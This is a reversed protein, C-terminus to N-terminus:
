QSPSCGRMQRLFSSIVTFTTCHLFQANMINLIKKSNDSKNKGKSNLLRMQMQMFSSKLAQIIGSIGNSLYDM